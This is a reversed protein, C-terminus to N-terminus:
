TRYHANIKIYGETLDCTYATASEKGYNLNVTILIEKKMLIQHAKKENFKIEIGKKAIFMNDFSIDTKEEKFNVGSNGVASLIRGWNPDGGYIATKFLSSGAIAKACQLAEKKTKANLVRVEIFKTSGEGDKVIKKALDLMVTNLAKYFAKYDKGASIVPKNGAMGNALIVATDNTSTDGDVTISNFTLGNLEKFALDLMKKSVSLDTLIFCLMTAMDPHIMGSGKTMGFISCNKGGAKFNIFATKRFTDTTMIAEAAELLTDERLSYGATEIGDLIKEIPMKVGIVGTSCVLVENKDSATMLATKEAMALADKMGQKGTCANANGSNVVVANILGKKSNKMSLLVPAAKVKNKTFVASSVAPIESYIVALDKKLPNKKVGSHLAASRFGKVKLNM